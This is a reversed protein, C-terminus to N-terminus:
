KSAIQVGEAYRTRFEARERCVVSGCASPACVPSRCLSLIPSVQASAACSRAVLAQHVCPPAVSLLIPRSVSEDLM